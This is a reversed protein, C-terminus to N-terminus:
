RIVAGWSSSGSVSRAGRRRGMRVSCSSSPGAAPPGARRAAMRAAESAINKRAQNTTLRYSSTSGLNMGAGPATQSRKWCDIWVSTRPVASKGMTLSPM